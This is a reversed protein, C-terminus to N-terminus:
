PPRDCGDYTYGIYEDLKPIIKTDKGEAKHMRGTFPLVKYEQQQASALAIKHLKLLQKM